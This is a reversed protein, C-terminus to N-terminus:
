QTGEPTGLQKALWEWERQNWAPHGHWRTGCDQDPPSCNVGHCVILPGPRKREKQDRAPMAADPDLPKSLDMEAPYHIRMTPEGIGNPTLGKCWPCIGALDQGSRVDGLLRAVTAPIDGLRREIWAAIPEDDDLTAAHARPLLWVMVALWPRLDRAPPRPPRAIVASTGGVAHTIEAFLWGCLSELEALLSLVMVNAPAPRPVGKWGMQELQAATLVTSRRLDRQAWGKRTGPVQLEVLAPWVEALYRLDRCVDRYKAELRRRAREAKEEASLEARTLVDTM